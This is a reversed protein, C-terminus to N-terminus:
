FVYGLITSVIVSLLGETIWIWLLTRWGTFKGLTPSPGLISRNLRNSRATMMQATTRSTLFLRRLIGSIPLISSQKARFKEDGSPTVVFDPAREAAYAPGVMSNMVLNWSSMIKTVRPNVRLSESSNDRHMLFTKKSYAALEKEIAILAAIRDAIDSIRDSIEGTSFRKWSPTLDKLLEFARSISQLAKFKYPHYIVDFLDHYMIKPGVWGKINPRFNSLAHHEKHLKQWIKSSEKSIWSHLSALTIPLGIKRGYAHQFLSIFKERDTILGCIIIMRILNNTQKYHPASVRSKVKYGLGAIHALQSLSLKYLKGYEYLSTVSALAAYLEKIPTPSVNNGQYFTKKAFELGLGKYSLISKALNCEVGLDLILQHYSKSVKKNFIVIDDGLVAYDKFLKNWPLGSQWAAVQVILHHTFALMAWSSKAGMPQGVAYHLLEGTVPVSYPRGVLTYRWAEAEEVTLDFVAQILPVQLSMPLRDTAASLDMSYLTKHGWARSLPKLQNFTGDMPIKRLFSFLVEHFPSLIMQSWPDVMAFVRMKGAAEQKLGLSGINWHKMKSTIWYKPVSRGGSDVVFAFKFTKRIEASIKQIGRIKNIVGPTPITPEIYGNPTLRGLYIPGSLKALLELSHMMKPDEGLAFASKILILPHTSALSVGMGEKLEKQGGRQPSSKSIPFYAFKGGLLARRDEAYCFLRVFRPIFKIVLEVAEQKGSFPKTITSTKPPSDYIFDRYISLITLGLRKPWVIKSDRIWKRLLSPLIRPLGSNTRSIRPSLDPVRYGCISQQLAVSCMKLYKVLGPEGQTKALKSCRALTTKIVNSVSPTVKGQMAPMLRLIIGVVSYGLNRKVMAFLKGYSFSKIKVGMRKLKLIKM